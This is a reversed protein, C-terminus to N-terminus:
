PVPRHFISLPTSFILILNASLKRARCEFHAVASTCNTPYCVGYGNVELVVSGNLGSSVNHASVLPTMADYTNGILLVPGKTHVKFDGEYRGKSEMKWQVCTAHTSPTWDGMIKGTSYLREVAPLFDSFSSSRATSDGCRIGLVASVMQAVLYAIDPGVNLISLFQVVEENINGTLFM